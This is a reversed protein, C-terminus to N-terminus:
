IPLPAIQAKSTRNGLYSGVGRATGMASAELPGMTVRGTALTMTSQSAGLEPKGGSVLRESM